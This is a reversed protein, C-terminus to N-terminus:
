YIHGFGYKKASKPVNVSSHRLHFVERKKTSHLHTEPSM